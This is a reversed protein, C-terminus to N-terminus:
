LIKGSLLSVKEDQTLQKIIKEIDASAIQAFASDVIDKVTMKSRPIDLSLILLSSKETHPPLWGKYGEL